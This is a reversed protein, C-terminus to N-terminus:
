MQFAGTMDFRGLAFDRHLNEAIHEEARADGLAEAFIDLPDSLM